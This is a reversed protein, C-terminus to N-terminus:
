KDIIFGLLNIYDFFQKLVEVSLLKLYVACFWFTEAIFFNCMGPM